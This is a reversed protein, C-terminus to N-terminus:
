LWDDEGCSGGLVWGGIVSDSCVTELDTVSPPSELVTESIESDSTESEPGEWRKLHDVHVKLSRGETEHQIEYLVSTIKRVVRYPGKWGLGMKVNALPPYWRWVKQGPEFTKLKERSDYYRKQRKFSSELKERAFAWTSELSSCLWENYESLCEPTSSNITQAGGVILEVPLTIERGFMLRFPSFGTSEHETSRYAMLLYPLLDDWDRKYEDVFMSLMQLITRNFREIMGDSQPRYPTTRTKTISLKECLEAFLRSEFERGQDTHIYAPTGFRSIVETMLKDAVTQARHDPLAFAETWKTFYDGVVMIYENGNYSQNLPGLIDIAIREFPAGSRRHQLPARGLGPGPKGRACMECQKCWRIVDGRLGPWYFRSRVARLTRERGLHGATKTNHLQQMIERRLTRPVVLVRCDIKKHDM